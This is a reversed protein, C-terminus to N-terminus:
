EETNRRDPMLRHDKNSNKKRKKGLFKQLKGERKLENFREDLAIDKKAARKLFFPTKGEQVKQREARNVERLRVKVAAARHREMMEQKMKGLSEKLVSKTKESKVKKLVKTIENIEKEQREELFEYSQLFKEHNLKGHLDMFRPDRFKKVSNDANDRLRKVPRRSSMEAPANKHHVSIESDTSIVKSKRRVRESPKNQISLILEREKAIQLRECLPLDDM